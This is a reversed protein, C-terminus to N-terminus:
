PAADENLLAIAVKKPCTADPWGLADLVSNAREMPVECIIQVMKRGMINRINCFDAQIIARNM